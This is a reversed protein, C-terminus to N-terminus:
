YLEHSISNQESISSFVEFDRNRQRCKLGNSCEFVNWCTLIQNKVSKLHNPVIQIAILNNCSFLKKKTYSSSNVLTTKWFTWNTKSVEVAKFSISIPFTQSPKIIKPLKFVQIALEINILYILEICTVCWDDRILFVLMRTWM